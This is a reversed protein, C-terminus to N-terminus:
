RRGANRHVFCRAGFAVLRRPLSVPMLALRMSGRSVLVRRRGLAALAKRAVVPAEEAHGPMLQSLGARKFFNTRTAGPCLALVDIPEDALDEALGETYSLEFTKTAAYMAFLPMPVFAVTSSVVILGARTGKQRARAIMDPLLSHILDVVATVNVAVMDLEVERGNELSPGFKGFGANNILLDVPLARAAAIVAARGEDTALDAAVTEIQRGDRRHLAAEAALREPDRGTLLLGTESPLAASFAAGIGSTAGTILAMRYRSPM